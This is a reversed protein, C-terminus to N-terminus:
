NGIWRVNSRNLIGGCNTEWNNKTFISLEAAPIYSNGFKTAGTETRTYWSQQAGWSVLDGNSLIPLLRENGSLFALMLLTVTLGSFILAESAGCVPHILDAPFLEINSSIELAKNTIINGEPMAMLSNQFFSNEWYILMYDYRDFVPDIPRKFNVGLDSYLGGYQNLVVLRLIDAAFAFKKDEILIKIQESWTGHKIASSYEKVESNNIGQSIKKVFEPTSDISNVWFYHKWESSFNENANKIMQSVYLDPPEFPNNPHTLWIKHSIKKNNSKYPTKDICDSLSKRCLKLMWSEISLENPISSNKILNLMFPHMKNLNGPIQNILARTDAEVASLSYQDTSKNM